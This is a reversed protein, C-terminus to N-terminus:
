ITQDTAKRISDSEQPDFIKYSHSTHQKLTNGQFENEKAEVEPVETIQSTIENRSNNESFQLDKIYNEQIVEISTASIQEVHM